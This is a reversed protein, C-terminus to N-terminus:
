SRARALLGAVRGRVKRGLRRWRQRSRERTRADVRARKAAEKERKAAARADLRSQREQAKAAFRQDREAERTQRNAAEWERRELRRREDADLLRRRVHERQSLRVALPAFLAGARAVSGRRAQSPRGAAALAEAVFVPTSAQDLGRPRVFQELFARQNARWGADGALAGALQALHADIDDAVLPLGGAVELLYRFHQMGWQHPRFEPRTITLVPRGLVAAELLASTVLGVVAEAHYLADFYDAEAAADVVAGGRLVANPVDLATGDWEHMREPHPRVLLGLRSLPEPSRRLARAWEVVFAPEGPSPTLASCVYLIFPTSPDLGMDGCFAERSRTPQRGFWRDYCQAGTAFVRDAPLGHLEVAERRQTENWVFVRDPWDVIRAKSSLHDWSYVCAISPVRRAIAARLIDPQVSRYHTLSALLLVDPALSQLWDILIPNAPLGQEIASLVRAAPWRELRSEVALQPVWDRLRPALKPFEAYDPGLFRLYDLTIRVRQGLDVAPDRSVDPVQTVSVGPLATLAATMRDGGLRDPEEVALVVEHGQRAFEAVVSEFNRLLGGHLMALVVKM